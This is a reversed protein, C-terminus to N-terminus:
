CNSQFRSGMTEPSFDNVVLSSICKYKFQYMEMIVLSSTVMSEFM